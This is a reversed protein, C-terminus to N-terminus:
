DNELCQNNFAPTHTNPPLPQPVFYLVYTGANTSIHGLFYIAVHILPCFISWGFALPSPFIFYWIGICIFLARCKLLFSKLTLFFRFVPTYLLSLIEWVIHYFCLVDRLCYLEFADGRGLFKVGSKHELKSIEKKYRCPALDSFTWLRIIIFFQLFPGWVAMWLFISM